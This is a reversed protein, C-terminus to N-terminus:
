AIKICHYIPHGIVEIELHGEPDSAVAASSHVFCFLAAEGTPAEGKILSNLVAAARRYSAAAAEREGNIEQVDGSISFSFVLGIDLYDKSTSM